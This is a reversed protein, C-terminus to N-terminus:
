KTSVPQRLSVGPMLILLVLRATHVFCPLWLLLPPLLLLVPIRKVKHESRKRLVEGPSSQTEARSTKRKKQQQSM